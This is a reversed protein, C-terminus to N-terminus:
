REKLFTDKRAASISFLNWLYHMLVFAFALKIWFFYHSFIQAESWHYLDRLKSLDGDNEDTPIASGWPIRSPDKRIQLWQMAVAGFLVGGLAGVPFRWFDWRLQPPFRYVFSSVLLASFLIEGTCGFSIRFENIRELEVFFTARTQLLLAVAFLVTMVRSRWRVAAAVGVTWLTCFFVIVSNSRFEDWSTFFPLPLAYIGAFWSAAAHGLEHFPMSLFSLLIRLGTLEILAGTLIALPIGLMEVNFKRQYDIGSSQTQIATSPNLERPVDSPSWRAHRQSAYYTRLSKAQDDLILQGRCDQCSWFWHRHLSVMRLPSDQCRPCWLDSPQGEQSRDEHVTMTGHEVGQTGFFIEFEGPDLWSLQCDSCRNVVLRHDVSFDSVRMRCKPCLIATSHSHEEAM